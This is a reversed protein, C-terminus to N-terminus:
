FHKWGTNEITLQKGESDLISIGMKSVISGIRNVSIGAQAGLRQVLEKKESAASFLLEYDDGGGFVSQWYESNRDLVLAASSSLPIDGQFVTAGVGSADCIHDLDAFLGDSVDVCASATGVMLPGLATRPQPLVYRDCLAPYKNCAAERGFEAILRLAIAADGITGTVYIDDGVVAGSRRVARGAPIEGVATLSLTLPGTTSTTDGGLLTINYETQDESLGTAFSQLWEYSIEPSLSLALLYGKPVGGSAALDSLSVRLLKKAVLNAPDDKFFHVGEVLTDMSYLAEYGRSVSLTACDDKLEAAGTHSKALPVFLEEILDFESPRNKADNL